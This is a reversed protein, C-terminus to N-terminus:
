RGKMSKWGFVSAPRPQDSEVLGHAVPAPLRTLYHSAGQATSAHLQQLTDWERRLLDADSLASLVKIVVLEGLRVVWRARYVTTSEGLALRGELVYTRGGLNLRPRDDVPERMPVLAGPKGPLNHSGCSKCVIVLEAWPADLPAGCGDCFLM